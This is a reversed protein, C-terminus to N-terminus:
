EIKDKAEFLWMRVVFPLMDSMISQAIRNSKDKTVKRDYVMGFFAMIDISVASPNYKILATKAACSYDYPYTHHHNHWGEGITFIAVLLNDAPKIDKNYERKGTYHALSNVTCTCHLTCVM